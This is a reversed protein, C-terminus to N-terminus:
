EAGGESKGNLLKQLEALQSGATGITGSVANFYVEAADHKGGDSSFCSEVITAADILGAIRRVRERIDSLDPTAITRIREGAHQEKLFKGLGPAINEIGKAIATSLEPNPPDETNKAPTWNAVFDAVDLLCQ